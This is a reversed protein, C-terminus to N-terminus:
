RFLVDQHRTVQRIAASHSTICPLLSQLSCVSAPLTGRIGAYCLSATTPNASEHEPLQHPAVSTSSPYTDQSAQCPKSIPDTRPMQVDVLRCPVHDHCPPSPPPIPPMSLAYIMQLPPLIPTGYMSFNIWNCFCFSSLFICSAVIYTTSGCVDWALRTGRPGPVQGTRYGHTHQISYAEAEAQLQRTHQVHIIRMPGVFAAECPM